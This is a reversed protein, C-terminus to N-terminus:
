LLSLSAWGVGELYQITCGPLDLSLRAKFSVLHFEGWVRQTSYAVGLLTHLGVWLSHIDHPADLFM